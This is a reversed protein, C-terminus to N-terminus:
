AWQEWVGGIPLRWESVSQMKVVGRGLLCMLFFTHSVRPVMGMGRAFVGKTFTLSRGKVSSRGQNERLSIVRLKAM